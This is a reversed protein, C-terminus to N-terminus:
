FGFEFHVERDAIKRAEVFSGLAIVILVRVAEVIYPGKNLM